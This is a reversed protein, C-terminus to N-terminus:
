NNEKKRDKKLAVVSILLVTGLVGVTITAKEYGTMPADVPRDNVIKHTNNNSDVVKEKDIEYKTLVNTLNDLNTEGVVFYTYRDIYKVPLIFGEPAKVEEIKYLIDSGDPTKDALGSINIKGNVDSKFTKNDSVFPDYGGWEGNDKLIYEMVVGHENKVFRYLHFEAGELAKDVVGSKWLGSDVKTFQKNYTKTTVETKPKDEDPIPDTPDEPKVPKDPNNFTKEKIKHNLTINNKLETFEETDKFSNTVKATYKIIYEGFGSDEVTSKDFTISFENAKQGNDISYKSKDITKISDGDKKTVLISEKDIVLREDATDIIKIEESTDISAFDKPILTKIEYTIPADIGVSSNKSAISKGAFPKINNVINSLKGDVLKEGDKYVPKSNESFTWTIPYINGDEGMRFAYRNNTDNLAHLSALYSKSTDEGDDYADVIDSEVEVLYYTKDAKLGDVSVIGKDNSNLILDTGENQLATGQGPIGEYLKFAANELPVPDSTLTNVVKTVEVKRRSDDVKNKPYVHIDGNDIRRNETGKLPYDLLMPQAHETVTEPHTTEMILIYGSVRSEDFLKNFRITGDSNIFQEGLNFKVTGDSEYNKINTSLENAMEQSNTIEAKSQFLKDVKTKDLVYVTFGVKGYEEPNYPQIKTKDYKKVISGDNTIKETDDLDESYKLKHITLNLESSRDTAGGAFVPMVLGLLMIFVMLSSMIRKTSKKMADVEKRTNLVIMKLKDYNTIIFM